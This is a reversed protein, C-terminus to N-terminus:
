PTCFITGIKQAVRYVYVLTHFQVRCLQLLVLEKRHCLTGIYTRAIVFSPTDHTKVVAATICILDNHPYLILLVFCFMLRITHSHLMVDQLASCYQVFHHSNTLLM